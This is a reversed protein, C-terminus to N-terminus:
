EIVKKCRRHRAARRDELFRSIISRLTVSTIVYPPVGVVVNSKPVKDFEFLRNNQLHTVTDSM